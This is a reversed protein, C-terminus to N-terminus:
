EPDDAPFKFCPPNAPCNHTDTCAHNDLVIPSSSTLQAPVQDM